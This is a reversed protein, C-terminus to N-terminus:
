WWVFLRRLLSRRAMSSTRKKTRPTPEAAGNEATAVGNVVAHVPEHTDGNTHGNDLYYSDDDSDHYGYGNRGYGYGYREYGYGRYDAYTGVGNVVAGLIRAGLTQLVERAREARPRGNKCIRLVLLVGDVRASIAGPDTVALLPPTDVVVYDFKERLADLVEKFRYSLLLEAPNPPLAGCPMLSLGPVGSEFIADDLPVQGAVVSALGIRGSVGFLKHVRPKRFDADILVTKKGSQAISVALNACLTSKGDGKEPSTVQLVKHSEGRSSFYLATRVGRYAEADVSKFRHVTCLTDDINAVAPDENHRANEEVSILPIHGLIPIGLRRRIEEPTRFSKDTIEALYALGLGGLLGLFVSVSFIPFPKPEVKLGALAPFIPRAEYGGLDRVLDIEQLRKIVGDYLQQTRAINTRYTEDQIEDQIQNKTELKERDFLQALSQEELLIQALELKLSQVYIDVADPLREGGKGKTAGDTLLSAQRAAYERTLEIRKRLAQLAPFDPGFDKLMVQEQVLLPLLQDEPNLAALPKDTPSSTRNALQLVIAVLESRGRGNKTANEIGNLRAQVEAHRVIAASRKAEINSLREQHLSTGEKGKWLLPARVRFQRYESEKKQLDTLLEDRARTILHLTDDSVNKYTEDLFDKYGDIIANLVKACEDPVGGRFSLMLINNSVGEKTDRSVTLHSLINGTPDGVGAFTQLDQLNHKKVARGVIVPSKILVSHTSLYDEYYGMRADEGLIPTADPRKKVVLVQATSQYIPKRQVYYLSGLVVGVVIGLVILSKRSWAIWLLNPAGQNPQTQPMDQDVDDLQAAM